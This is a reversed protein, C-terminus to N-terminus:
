HRHRESERDKQRQGRNRERGREEEESVRVICYLLRRFTRNQTKPIMHIKIDIHRMHLKKEVGVWVCM